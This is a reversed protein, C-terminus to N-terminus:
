LQVVKLKLVLIAAQECHTVPVGHSTISDGKWPQLMQSIDFYTCGTLKWISFTPKQNIFRYGSKLSLTWHSHATKKMRSWFFYGKYQYLGILWKKPHYLSRKSQPTLTFFIDSKWPQRKKSKWIEAVKSSLVSGKEWFPFKCIQQQPYFIYKLYTSLHLFASKKYSILISGSSWGSLRRSCHFHYASISLRDLFYFHETRQSNETM